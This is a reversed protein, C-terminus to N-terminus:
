YVKEIHKLISICTKFACRPHLFYTKSFKVSVYAWNLLDQSKYMNVLAENYPPGTSASFVQGVWYFWTDVKLFGGGFAQISNGDTDYWLQGNPIATYNPQGPLADIGRPDLQTARRSLDHQESGFTPAAQSFPLSLLISLALGWKM